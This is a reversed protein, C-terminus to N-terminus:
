KSALNKELKEVWLQTALHQLEVSSLQEPEDDDDGIWDFVPKHRQNHTQSSNVQSEAEETPSQKLYGMASEIRLETAEHQLEVSSKGILEDELQGAWDFKLKGKPRPRTEALLEDMLSIVKALQVPSLQMAKEQVTQLTTSM